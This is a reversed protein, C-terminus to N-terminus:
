ECENEPRIAEELDRLLDGSAVYLDLAKAAIAVSMGIAGAAPNVAAVYVAAGSNVYADATHSAITIGEGLFGDSLIDSGNALNELVTAACERGADIGDQVGEEVRNEANDWIPSLLDSFIDNVRSDGFLGGPIGQLGFPDIQNLVGNRVYLYVNPGDAFGVPDRSLWRGLEPDYARFWTLFLDSEAHHFHGTFLFDSEVGTVGIKTVEGWPSYDYRAEM